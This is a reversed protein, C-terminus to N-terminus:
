EDSDAAAWVKVSGDYSDTLLLTGDHNFTASFENQLELLMIGRSVDWVRLYREETDDSDAWSSVLVTEDANFAIDLSSGGPGPSTPDRGHELTQLHSGTATSWLHIYNGNRNWAAFIAGSRSFAMRDFSLGTSFTTDLRMPHESSSVNVLSVNSNTDLVALLAADPSFLLDLVESGQTFSFTIEQAELSWIQVVGSRGCDSVALLTVSMDFRATCVIKPLSIAQWTRTDILGVADSSSRYVIRLDDPSFALDLMSYHDLVKSLEATATNWVRVHGGVYGMDSLSAM